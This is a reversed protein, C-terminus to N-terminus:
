TTPELMNFWPEPRGNIQDSLCPITAIGSAAPVLSPDARATLEAPQTTPSSEDAKEIGNRYSPVIVYRRASRSGEPEPQSRDIFVEEDARATLSPPTM